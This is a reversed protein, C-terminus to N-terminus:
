EVARVESARIQMVGNAGRETTGAVDVRAGAEVDPAGHQTTVAVRTEGDRVWLRGDEISVVEVNDLQVHQGRSTADLVHAVSTLTEDSDIDRAIRGPAEGAGRFQVEDRTGDPRPAPDFGGPLQSGGTAVADPDRQASAPDAPRNLWYILAIGVVAFLAVIPVVYSLLARRRTRPQLLVNPPNRPNDLDRSEPTKWGRSENPEHAM